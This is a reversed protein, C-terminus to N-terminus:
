EADELRRRRRRARKLYKSRFIAGIGIMPRVNVAIKMSNIGVSVGQIDDALSTKATASAFPEIAPSNNKIGIFIKGTVTYEANATLVSQRASFASFASPAAPAAPRPPPTAPTPPTVPGTAHDHQGSCATVLMAAAMSSLAACRVTSMGFVNTPVDNPTRGRIDTAFDCVISVTRVAKARFGRWM